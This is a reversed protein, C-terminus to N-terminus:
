EFIAALASKPKVFNNELSLNCNASIEIYVYICYSIKKIHSIIYRLEQKIINTFYEGHAVVLTINKKYLFTYEVLTDLIDFNPKNSNNKYNVFINNSVDLTNLYKHFHKDRISISKNKINSIIDTFQFIIVSYLRKYKFLNLLFKETVYCKELTDFEICYCGKTNKSYVSLVIRCSLQSIEHNDIKDIHDSILNENAKTDM